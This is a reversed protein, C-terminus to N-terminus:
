KMKYEILVSSVSLAKVLKGPLAAGEKVIM